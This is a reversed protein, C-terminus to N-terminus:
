KVGVVMFEAFCTIWVTFVPSQQIFGDFRQSAPNLPAVARREYRECGREKPDPEGVVMPNEGADVSV